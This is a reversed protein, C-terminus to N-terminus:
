LSHCSVHGSSTLVQWRYWNSGGSTKWRTIEGLPSLPMVEGDSLFHRWVKLCRYIFAICSISGRKLLAPVTSPVTSSQASFCILSGINFIPEWSFLWIGDVNNLVLEASWHSVDVQGQECARSCHDSNIIKTGRRLGAFIHSPSVFLSVGWILLAASVHM